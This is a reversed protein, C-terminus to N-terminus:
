QLDHNLSMIGELKQISDGKQWPHMVDPIIGKDNVQKGSPTLYIGSTLRLASGDELMWKAQITGKGVTKEGYIKGRGHDQLAGAILEAASATTKNTLVVVPFNSHFRSDNVYPIRGFRTAKQFIVEKPNLFIGAIRAAVAVEGGVCNRLDLILFRNGQRKFKQLAKQVKLDDGSRILKIEVVGSFTLQAEKFHTFLAPAPHLHVRTIGGQRSILLSVPQGNEPHILRDAEKITNIRKGNVELLRDGETLGAKESPSGSVVGALQVSNQKQSMILGFTPFSGQQQLAKERAVDAPSLLEAYPDPLADVLSALVKCLFIRQNHPDKAMMKAVIQTYKKRTTKGSHLVHLHELSKSLWIEEDPKYYSILEIQNMQRLLEHLNSCCSLAFPTFWALIVLFLICFFLTKRAPRSYPCGPFLSFLM